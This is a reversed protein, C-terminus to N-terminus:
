FNEFSKFNPKMASKNAKCYYYFIEAYFFINKM